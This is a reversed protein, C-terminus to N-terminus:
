TWSFVTSGLYFVHVTTSKREDQDGGWESDSYGVLEANEGYTYFLGFNLTGKIYRLIRKATLWHSERPTKMYHSVLGIGHLIDPRTMTLYRLSGVLSKYMTSNVHKGEREKSLKLRTAVPTNVANCSDM